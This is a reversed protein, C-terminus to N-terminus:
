RCATIGIMMSGRYGCNPQFVKCHTIHLDEQDLQQNVLGVFSDQDYRNVFELLIAELVVQRQKGFTRVFTVNVPLRISIGTQNAARTVADIALTAIMPNTNM